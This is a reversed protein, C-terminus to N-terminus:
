EHLEDEQRNEINANIPSTRRLRSDRPRPFTDARRVPYPENHRIENGGIQFRAYDVGSKKIPPRIQEIAMATTTSVCHM